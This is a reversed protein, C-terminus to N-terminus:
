VPHVSIASAHRSTARLRPLDTRDSTLVTVRSGGAALEEAVQLVAADVVSGGGQQRLSVAAEARPSTLEIDRVRLQGLLAASPAQRALLAEVRVVTPVVLEAAGAAGKRRSAIAEVFALVDSHTAHRINM